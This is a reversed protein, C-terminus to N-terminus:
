GGRPGNGRAAETCNTQSAFAFLAVSLRNAVLDLFNCSTTLLICADIAVVGSDPRGERTTTAGPEVSGQGVHRGHGTYTIGHMARKM